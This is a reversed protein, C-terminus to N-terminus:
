DCIRKKVSKSLEFSSINNAGLKLFFIPSLLFIVCVLIEKKNQRLIFIAPSAFFSFAFCISVM